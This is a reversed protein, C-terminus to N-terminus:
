RQIGLLLYNRQVSSKLLFEQPVIQGGRDLLYIEKTLGHAPVM